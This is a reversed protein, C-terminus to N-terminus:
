ADVPVKVDTLMGTFVSIDTPREQLPRFHHHVWGNEIELFALAVAGEFLLTSDVPVIQRITLVENMMPVRTEGPVILNTGPIIAWEPWNDNICVVRQGVVFECKM